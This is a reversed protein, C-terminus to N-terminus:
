IAHSTESMDPPTLVTTWCAAASPLSSNRGRKESGSTTPKTAASMVM